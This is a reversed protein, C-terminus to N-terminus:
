RRDLPAVNQVQASPRRLTVVEIASGAFDPVRENRAMAPANTVTATTTISTTRAPRGGSGSVGEPGGIVVTM